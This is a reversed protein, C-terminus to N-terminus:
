RCRWRGGRRVVWWRRWKFFCRCGKGGVEVAELVTRQIGIKDQAGVEEMVITKLAPGAVQAAVAVAVAVLAPLAILLMKNNTPEKEETEGQGAPPVAALPIQGM